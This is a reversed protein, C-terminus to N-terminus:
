IGFACENVNNMAGGEDEDGDLACQLVSFAVSM